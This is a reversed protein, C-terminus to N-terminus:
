SSKELRGMQSPSAGSGKTAKGGIMWRMAPDHRLRLVDNVDEYGALRSFVSQRFMAVLAHRGNKGTHADAHSGFTADLSIPMLPGQELKGLLQRFRQLVQAADVGSVVCAPGTPQSQLMQSTGITIIFSFATTLTDPQNGLFAEVKNTADSQGEFNTAFSVRM